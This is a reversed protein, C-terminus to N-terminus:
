YLTIGWGELVAYLCVVVVDGGVFLYLTIGWVKYVRWYIGEDVMLNVYQDPHDQTFTAIHRLVDLLGDNRGINADIMNAPQFCLLSNISNTHRDKEVGPPTPESMLGEVVAISSYFFDTKQYKSYCVLEEVVVAFRQDTFIDITNAPIIDESDDFM